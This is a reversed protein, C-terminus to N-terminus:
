KPKKNEFHAARLASLEARKPKPKSPDLKRGLPANPVIEGCLFHFTQGKVVYTGTLLNDVTLSKSTKVPGQVEAADTCSVKCYRFEKSPPFYRFVTELDTAFFLGLTASSPLSSSDVHM